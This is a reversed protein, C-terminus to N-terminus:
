KSLDNICHCIMLKNIQTRVHMWMYAFAYRFDKTLEYVSGALLLLIEAFSKM